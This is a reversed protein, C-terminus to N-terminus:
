NGATQAAAFSASPASAVQTLNLNLAITAQSGDPIVAPQSGYYGEGGGAYTNVANTATAVPTGTCAAGYYGDGGGAYRTTCKGDEVVMSPWNGQELASLLQPFRERSIHTMASLQMTGNQAASLSAAPFVLTVEQTDTQVVPAGSEAGYYGDGGGAYPTVSRQLRTLSLDGVVTLKGDSTMASRKSKFSIESYDAGLSNDPKINLNVIPDAPDSSDFAVNGTIRAVGVEASKPSSGLSLRAISHEADVQWIGNQAHAPISAIGAALALLLFTLGVKNTAFNVIRLMHSKM